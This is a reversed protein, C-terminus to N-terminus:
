DLGHTRSLKFGGPVQHQFVGEPDYKRAVAQMFRVNDPGYGRLPDQTRGAYNLYIYENYAGTLRAYADLEARESGALDHFLSDDAKDSWAYSIIINLMNKNFRELGLANGGRAESDKWFLPVWAQVVLVIDFDKSRARSRTRHIQKFFVQVAQHIIDARNLYTSTQGDIRYPIYAYRTQDVITSIRTTDTINPIQYFKQFVAPRMVPRTYALMAVIDTRDMAGNYNFIGYWAGHPDTPIRDTFDTAASIYEPTNSVNYVLLGGWLDEAPLTEMDFTTVIGFNNSGGKLAKFLDPHSNRNAYVIESNAMVVEFSQVNDCSLGVRADYFSLGGGTLFGGVGIPAVRGGAVTVNSKLLTNYVSGWHAGTQISATGTSPDYTTRNMLSLDITVGPEINAAGATPTHGGSRVAFLCPAATSTTLRRVAVSVDQASLPQVICTPHLRANLSYYSSLSQEYAVSGPFAVRSGITSTNLAACCLDPNRASQALCSRLLTSLLIAGIILINM